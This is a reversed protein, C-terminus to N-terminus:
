LNTAEANPPAHEQVRQKCDIGREAHIYHHRGAACRARSVMCTCYLKHTYPRGRPCGQMTDIVLYKYEHDALGM